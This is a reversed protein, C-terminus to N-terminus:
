RYAATPDPGHVEREFKPVSIRWQSGAKFAGHLKDTEALPYATSKGIGLQEAARSNLKVESRLPTM